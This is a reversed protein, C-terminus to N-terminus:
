PSLPPPHCCVRLAHARVCVCVCVCVCAFTCVVRISRSHVDHAHLTQGGHPKAPVGVGEMSKRATRANGQCSNFSGPCPQGQGRARIAKHVAQCSNHATFHVLLSSTKGKLSVRGSLQLAAPRALVLPGALFWLSVAQVETLRCQRHNAPWYGGATAHLQRVPRAKGLLLSLSLLIRQAQAV